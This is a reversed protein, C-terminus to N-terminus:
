APLHKSLFRIFNGHLVKDIDEPSYGRKELLDGVRQLASISQVDQPTQEIGFGGDLDSGIGVHNANGALQCIHDTHELLHELHLGAERPTTIGRQWGPVMMWADLAGGIVAGREILRVIQEDPIQRPDNVLARCNSHSAWVAGGYLDLAEHFTRDCLHSADLIMGLGDMERLLERGPDSLPGDQDHGLAYRGVGYHAPGLARLGQEWSQELHRPTRISDAGELSLVYGIPGEVVGQQCRGLVRQLGGQDVIQELEGAEEMARYWALQGQTQSWAIEPSNWGSGVAGPKMCGALLTAVCLGVGGRRMEPFCVAGSGRGGLDSLGKEEDRIEDLEKRLDRNYDVACLSLDLHADFILKM